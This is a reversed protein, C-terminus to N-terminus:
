YNVFWVGYDNILNYNKSKRPKVKLYDLPLIFIKRDSRRRVQAHIGKDGYPDMLFDILEFTDPNFLLRGKKWQDHKGKKTGSRLM